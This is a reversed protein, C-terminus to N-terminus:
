LIYTEILRSTITKNNHYLTILIKHKCENQMYDLEKSWVIIDDDFSQIFNEKEIKKKIDNVSIM